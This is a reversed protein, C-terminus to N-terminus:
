LEVGTCGVHEGDEVGACLDGGADSHEVASLDEGSTHGAQYSCSYKCAHIPESADRPPSPEEDDLAGGRAEDGENAEPKQRVRGEGRPPQFVALALQCMRTYLPVSHRVRRIDLSRGHVAQLLRAAVLPGPEETEHLVEVKRRAREVGEERRLDAQSTLSLRYSKMALTDYLTTLVRPKLVVVVSAM